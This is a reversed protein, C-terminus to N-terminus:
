VSNQREGTVHELIWRYVQVPREPVWRGRAIALGDRVHVHQKYGDIVIEEFDSTFGHDSVILWHDPKALEILELAYCFARNYWRTAIELSANDHITPFFHHHAQDPVPYWVVFLDWGGVLNLKVVKHLRGVTEAFKDRPPMWADVWDMGFTSANRWVTPIDVPVNLVKVRYGRRALVDWVWPKRPKGIFVSPKDHTAFGCVGHEVSYVGTFMTNWVVPTNPIDDIYMMRRKGM